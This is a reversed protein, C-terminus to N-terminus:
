ECHEKLMEANVIDKYLKELYQDDTDKSDTSVTNEDSIEHEIIYREIASEYHSSCESSNSQEEDLHEQEKICEKPKGSSFSTVGDENFKIFFPNHLNVISMDSTMYNVSFHESLEIDYIKRM